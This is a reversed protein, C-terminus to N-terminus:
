GRYSSALLEAVSADHVVQRWPCSKAGYIAVPEFGSGTLALDLLDEAALTPRGARQTLPIDLPGEGDFARYVVETCVLRDAHFFDFDFNYLKGEHRAAREIARAIAREDLQPRLVAVADVALTEELPRFRVGDKLAELVCNPDSWRGRREPDITIGMRERDNTNGVYLAAHPWYGPLFLNSFAREQRTILVDGPRLIERLRERVAPTVHRTGWHDRLAAIFRGSAELFSLSTQQNASAGRRRLAHLRYRFLRGLYNSRSRDLSSELDPLQDVLRHFPDVASFTELVDRGQDLSHLAEDMRWANRPNVLSKFIATFQKRPIRHDPAAENLKRQVLRHTAVREVLLRDLRVVLCAAAFAVLFEDWQHKGRIKEVDHDLASSAEEMVDWLGQRVTLFRAFWLRLAEDEVPRFHGREIAPRCLTELEDPVDLGPVAAALATFAALHQEGLRPIESILVVSYNALAHLEHFGHLVWFM